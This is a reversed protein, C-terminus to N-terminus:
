KAAVALEEGRQEPPLAENVVRHVEAVHLELTDLTWLSTDIAPLVKVNVEGPHILFSNKRWIRHAGSVVVPVVPLGTALALHVFGKKFSRLRGDKSRTGEPWIWLGLGNERVLEAMNALAAIASGRNSRDIRLHGSMVYLQGFFPYYAVEKKAVGCVGIPSLWIGLFIDIPSTHNSVYIAPMSRDMEPKAGGTVTTGTVALISRGVIHGFVNCVRIRLTRWPLLLTCLVAFIAVAVVMILLGLLQRVASSLLAM